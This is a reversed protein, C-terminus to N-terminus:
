WKAGVGSEEDRAVKPWKKLGHPTEMQLAM